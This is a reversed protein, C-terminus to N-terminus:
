DEWKFLVELPVGPAVAEKIALAEDLTFSGTNMKRSLTSLNCKAPSALDKQKVGSRAMEALLNRYM